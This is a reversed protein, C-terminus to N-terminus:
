QKPPVASYRLDALDDNNQGEIACAFQWQWNLHDCKILLRNWGAELTASVTATKLANAYCSQGNMWVNLGITSAFTSSSLNLNVTRVHDSHIWRTAYLSDFTNGYVIAFPDISAPNRGGTYNISPTYLVWPYIKGQVSMPTSFGKGQILPEDYTQISNTASYTFGPTRPWAAQNNIGASIRWPTPIVINQTRQIAQSTATLTLTTTIKEPNGTVTFVGSTGAPTQSDLHWSEPLSLSVTPPIGTPQLETWWYTITYTHTQTDNGKSQSVLEYSLAPYANAPILNSLFRTELLQAAEPEGLGNLMAMAIGAHGATGPHVFDGAVHFDPTLARGRKLVAYAAEGTQFVRCGEEAAIEVIQQNLKARAINKPSEPDETLMTITCLAIIRPTTRTRLTHILDIYRGRWTQISDPSDGVYPSLIDNMGLMIVLIDTGADLTTRVEIDRVDMYSPASNTYKAANMWSGVGQGSGGLSLLSNTYEPHIQALAWKMQKCYGDALNMSHGTISDGVFLIRDTSQILTQSSVPSVTLVLTLLASLLFYINKM